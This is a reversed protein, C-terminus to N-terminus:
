RSYQVFLMALRGRPEWELLSMSAKYAKMEWEGGTMKKKM